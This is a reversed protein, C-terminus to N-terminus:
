WQRLRDKLLYIAAYKKYRLLILNESRYQQRDLHEPIHNQTRYNEVNGLVTIRSRWPEFLRQFEDMRFTPFRLRLSLVDCRLLISDDCCCSQVSCTNATPRQTTRHSPLLYDAPPGCPEKRFSWIKPSTSVCFQSLCMGFNDSINSIEFSFRRNLISSDRLSSLISNKWLAMDTASQVCVLLWILRQRCVSWCGYWDSFACQGAATLLRQYLWILRQSCVSWCGYWDSVACPGAAMDTASQVSILLQWRVSDTESIQFCKANFNYALPWLFALLCRLHM